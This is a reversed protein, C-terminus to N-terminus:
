NARLKKALWDDYAMWDRVYKQMNVIDDQIEQLSAQIDAEQEKFKATFERQSESQWFIELIKVVRSLEEMEAEQDQISKLIRECDAAFRPVVINVMAM